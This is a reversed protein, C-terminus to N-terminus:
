LLNVGLLWVALATFFLMFYSGFLAKWKTVDESYGMRQLIPRLGFMAGLVPLWGWYWPIPLAYLITSVLGAGLGLGLTFFSAKAGEKERRIFAKEDFAPLKFEYSEDKEDAKEERKSRAM